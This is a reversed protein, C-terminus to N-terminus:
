DAYRGPVVIIEPNLSLTALFAAVLSNPRLLRITKGAELHENLLNAFATACSFDIRRLQSLNINVYQRQEAFDRLEALQPDAAGWMVGTLTVLEPGVEYRPQDRKEQTAAPHPLPMVIPQWAPPSAGMALAYELATREFDKQLGRVRYLDMLLTWYAAASANGETAARLMEALYSAGTFMVGNGNSPLFRLLEAFAICGPEDLATVRSVDLHVSALSRAADRVLDMEARRTGDLAGAFQFYGPADPRLEAPLRAMDEENHWQPAATSFTTSFQESLKQYRNWDGRGRLLDFLMYWLERPEIGPEGSRLSRTLLDAAEAERGDAYLVAAEQAPPLTHSLASSVASGPLKM